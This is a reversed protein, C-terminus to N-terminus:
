ITEFKMLKGLEAIKLTDKLFAFSFYEDGWYIIQGGKISGHLNPLLQKKVFDYMLTGDEYEDMHKSTFNIGNAQYTIIVEDGENEYSTESIVLSDTNGTSIRKLENFIHSIGDKYNGFYQDLVITAINNSLKEETNNVHDKKVGGLERLVLWLPFEPNERNSQYMMLKAYLTDTCSDTVNIGIARIIELNNLFKEDM